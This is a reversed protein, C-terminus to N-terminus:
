FCRLIIKSYFLLYYNQIWQMLSEKERIMSSTYHVSISIAM